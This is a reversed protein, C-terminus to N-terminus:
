KCPKAKDSRFFVATGGDLYSTGGPNKTKTIRISDFVISKPLMGPKGQMAVIMDLSLANPNASASYFVTKKGAADEVTLRWGTLSFDVGADTNTNFMAFSRISKFFSTPLTDKDLYCDIHYMFADKAKVVKVVAPKEQSLAQFAILLFIILGPTKM